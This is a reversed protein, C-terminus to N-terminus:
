SALPRPRAPAPTGEVVVAIGLPVGVTATIAEQLAPLLRTSIRDRAVANPAGVILTDGERGILAAPRLWTEIEGRAVDGRKALEALASAWVQRNSLGVEAIVFSTRSGEKGTSGETTDGEQPTLRVGPPTGPQRPTPTLHVGGQTDMQCGTLPLPRADSVHRRNVGRTVFVAPRAPAPWNEATPDVAPPDEPPTLLTYRNSTQINTGEFFCSEVLVLGLLELLRICRQFTRESTAAMRAMPRVKEWSEGDRDARRALVAYVAIADAGFPFRELIPGYQDIIRDDIWFNQRSRRDRTREQV